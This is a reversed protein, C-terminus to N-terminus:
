RPIRISAKADIPKKTPICISVERAQSLPRLCLLIGLLDRNENTDLNGPM